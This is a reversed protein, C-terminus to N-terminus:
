NPSYEYQFEKFHAKFEEIAWNRVLRRPLTFISSKLKVRGQTNSCAYKYGEEQVLSIIKENYDRESGFPYSFSIVEKQMIHELIEKSKKIEQEQRLLTLQSLHPHTLTHSGIEILLSSSLKILEETTLARGQDNIQTKKDWYFPDRSDIKEATIFITAPIKLKELIPFANHLNDVYGDDFTIVIDKKNLRGAELKEVLRTLSIINFNNKLFSMQAYFNEPSVSLLHPDDKVNAVRHYILILSSPVFNYYIFKYNKFIFHHFLKASGYLHTQKLLQKLKKNM